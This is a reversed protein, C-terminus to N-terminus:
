RNFSWRARDGQVYDSRELKHFLNIEWTNKKFVGVRFKEADNVTLLFDAKKDETYEIVVIEINLIDNYVGVSQLLRKLIKLEVQNWIENNSIGFINIMYKGYNFLRNYIHDLDKLLLHKELDFEIEKFLGTGNSVNINKLLILKYSGDKIEQKKGLNDKVEYMMTVKYDYEFQSLFSELSGNAIFVTKANYETSDMLCLAGEKGRGYVITANEM